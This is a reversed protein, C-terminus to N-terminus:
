EDPETMAKMLADWTLTATRNWSYNSSLRKGNEIIRNRRDEDKYILMLKDAIDNIDAPDFYLAADKAIEEMSTGASTLPSVGCHMAELVPVGFGEFVSPYVLAYSAGVLKVVENEDLYGTLVIDNKYKYTKILERFEDNKWALRGTFVLKMSSKMRKKFISFAKLLAILNKRPHIAGVYIFYEAGGTYKEKIIDKEAIAIPKFSKKAASYIVSIKHPKLGYQKIIDNKSFESVTAISKAKKLFLPTYRKYFLYHTKKYSEGFHLFGLDHVVMCQPVKTHLSCFGDPSFFVDAKIKRLLRPIKVDMWWKWLIPHRAAPKVVHSTVNSLSFFDEGGDRDFILHFHHQPHEHVWIQLVEKIFYGYGELKEKILFRANVAIIM